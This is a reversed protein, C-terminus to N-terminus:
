INAGRSARLLRLVFGAAPLRSLVRLVAARGRGQRAPNQLWRKLARRAVPRKSEIIAQKAERLLLLSELVDVERGHLAM